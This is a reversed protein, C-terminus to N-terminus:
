IKYLLRLFREEDETLDDKRDKNYVDIFDIIEKRETDVYIARFGSVRSDISTIKKYRLKYSLFM